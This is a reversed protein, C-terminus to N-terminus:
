EIGEKRNKRGPIVPVNNNGELTRRFRDRDYGRDGAARCGVAERTLEPAAEVDNATGGRLFGEDVQGEATIGLHFKRSM